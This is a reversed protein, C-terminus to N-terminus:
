GPRPSTAQQFENEQALQDLTPTFAIYALNCSSIAIARNIQGRLPVTRPYKYTDSHGSDLILSAHARLHRPEGQFIRMLAPNCVTIVSFGKCNLGTSRLSLAPGTIVPRIARPSWHQAVGRSPAVEGYTKMRRRAPCLAFVAPRRRRQRLSVPSPM